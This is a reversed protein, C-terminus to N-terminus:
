VVSKRDTSANIVLAPVVPVGDQTPLPAKPDPAIANITPGSHTAQGKSGTIQNMIAGSFGSALATAFALLAANDPLLFAAILVVMVSFIFMVGLFLLTGNENRWTSKLPEVPLVNPM